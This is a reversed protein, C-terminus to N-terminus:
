KVFGEYYKTGDGKDGERKRELGLSEYLSTSRGVADLGIGGISGKSKARESAFKLLAHAVGRVKGPRRLLWFGMSRCKPHIGILNVLVLPNGSLDKAGAEQLILVGLTPLEPALAGIPRMVWISVKLEAKARRAEVLTWDWRRDLDAPRLWQPLRGWWTSRQSYTSIHEEDEQLLDDSVEVSVERKTGREPLTFRFTAM